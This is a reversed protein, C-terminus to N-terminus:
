HPPATGEDGADGVYDRLFERVVVSLDRGESKAKALAAVYLADPIRFARLATKPQNPVPDGGAQV